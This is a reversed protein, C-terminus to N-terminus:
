SIEILVEVFTKLSPWLCTTVKKKQEFHHNVKKM